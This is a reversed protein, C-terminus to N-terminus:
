QLTMLWDVVQDTTTLSAPPEAGQMDRKIVVVLDEYEMKRLDEEQYVKEEFPPEESAVEPKQPAITARKVKAAVTSEQTAVNSAQLNAQAQQPDGWAEDYSQQLMEEIDKMEYRSPDIPTAMGGEVDFDWRDGSTKYKTITYDRDTVTGFRAFRNKLKDGVTNGVKFADVYEQGNFSHLVNFGIQRQVKSMKENDSSCGPCNEIPDNAERSCPFSFGAPSFHQWWYKWDDPEELIRFTTDGEKLYRIFDGGAGRGPEEAAEKASKGFRM